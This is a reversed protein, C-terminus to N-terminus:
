WQLKPPIMSLYKEFLEPNINKSPLRQTVGIYAGYRNALRTALRAKEIPSRYRYPKSALVERVTRRVWNRDLERLRLDKRAVKRPNIARLGAERWDDLGNARVSATSQYRLELRVVGPRKHYIHINRRPVGRKGSTDEIYISEKGTKPCIMWKKKCTKWNMQVLEALAIFLPEEWAEDDLYHDLAIHFWSRKDTARGILEIMEITPRTVQYKVWFKNLPKCVLATGLALLSERLEKDYHRTLGIVTDVTATIHTIHDLAEAFRQAQVYPSLQQINTM